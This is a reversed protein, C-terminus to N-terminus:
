VHDNQNIENFKKRNRKMESYKDLIAILVYNGRVCLRSQPHTFHYNIKNKRPLKRTIM